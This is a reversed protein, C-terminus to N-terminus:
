KDQMQALARWGQVNLPGKKAIVKNRLFRLLPNKMKKMLKIPDDSSRVIWDVKKKRAAEFQKGIDLANFDLHNTQVKELLNSLALADEFACAAGQQLLPSCANSADGIFIIKDSYYYPQDVSRLQSFHIKSDDLHNLIMPVPGKFDSFITKISALHNANKATKAEAKIHGYCYLKDKSLPYAMFLETHHLMYTPELGHDRWEVIFRWNCIGHDVVTNRSPFCQKRLSSELGEACIILDYDGNVEPTNSEVTVKSEQNKTSIIHSNYHVKQKVGEVLAQYLDARELSIFKDQNLPPELLSASALIDGNSKTYDVRKVQHAQSLVRDALDLKRLAQVANFPLAIGSSSVKYDPYKEIIVYDIGLKELCRAMTLGAIGAGSILIRQQKM